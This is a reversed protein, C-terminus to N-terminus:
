ASLKYVLQNLIEVDLIISVFEIERVTEILVVDKLPINYDLYWLDALRVLLILIIIGSL